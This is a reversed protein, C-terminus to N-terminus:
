YPKRRRNHAPHGDWWLAFLDVNKCNADDNFLQVLSRLVSDRRRLRVALVHKCLNGKDADTCDCTYSGSTFRVRHPELGGTVVFLGGEVARVQLEMARRLRYPDIECPWDSSTVSVKPGYERYHYAGHDCIMSEAASIWAAARKISVGSIGEFDEPNALALDEIHGIGANTLKRAMTPGIGPVLTLTVAEEDLGANLMAMLAYVREAIPPPGSNPVDQEAPTAPRVIEQLALLIRELSECLRSVEFAYCGFREAVTEANSQRSWEWAVLSMQIAALLRKGQVGLEAQLRNQDWGLLGSRIDRLRDSLEDLEEFDVPLVPEADATCACLLLLDFFTPDRLEGIGQHLRLITDPALLHRTAIQGLRTAKLRGAPQATTVDESVMVMGANQMTTLTTLVSPLTQQQAALSRSYVSQLQSSSRALGSAVEVIIQEALARTDTLGSRIPEFDGRQYHGINPEWAPALLVAEGQTDLGPRGARGVRQWVSNTALPRFDSGDFAQLDYLVVQRVPLNIGMELTSTAVLIDTGEKRFRSEIDQRETYTLGAHHHTARLGAANLHRALEEARRRSQVFVLSKGGATVNKSVQQTLLTPKETARRYTVVQWDLPVPRWDSVYEVGGLWDALEQRNGLTASLGLVRLFPNLRLMRLLTGELRAGRLGDGLLHLEDVVLLDVEPIWHWHARWARTCADLREPTMVLLRADRFSVPYPRGSVGYDGTFIGVTNESFTQQWRERLETALSRLPCLYIARRGASLTEQIAQEALWTKGSGTPMQLLCHYRTSLLGRDLVDAQPPTLM